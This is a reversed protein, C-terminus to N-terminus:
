KDEDERRSHFYNTVDQHLDPKPSSWEWVDNKIIIDETPNFKHKNLILDRTHYARNKMNGHWLHYINIPLYDVTGKKFTNKWESMDSLMNTLKTWYHHLPESGLLCDVLFNDGSGLILRDYLGNPLSSKKTAWGFGPEAHFIKKQLRLNIWDEKYTNSQWAIGQKIDQYDGGYIEKQKLHIVKEFVQVFDAKELKTMAMDQWGDPLLLDSDLWAFHTCHQPLKSIAYNLLREKQWMVSHSHLHFTKIDASLVPQQDNFVLEVTLLNINQSELRDRFIKYNDIRSQYNAPNFVATICWLADM